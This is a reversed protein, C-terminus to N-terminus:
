TERDETEPPDQPTTDLDPQSLYEERIRLLRDIVAWRPVYVDFKLADLEDVIRRPIKVHRLENPDPHATM